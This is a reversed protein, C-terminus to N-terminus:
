LKLHQVLDKAAPKQLTKLFENFTSDGVKPKKGECVCVCVCVCLSWTVRPLSM